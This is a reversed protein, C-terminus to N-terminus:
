SFQCNVFLFPKRVFPGRQFRFYCSGDIDVDNTLCSSSALGVSAASLVALSAFFKM